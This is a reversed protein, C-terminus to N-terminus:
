KFFRVIAKTGKGVKSEITLDGSCMTKIRSRINNIGIHQNSEFDINNMDFGVGDDIVEVIYADSTEYSKVVVSGGEIKQLVGHKIANEVLPQISLPPVQFDKAKIDFSVNLRENFRMQELSVYTEIHKLEDEFRVTKNNTLTSFNMRLYETFDDLAKKAKNPDITILVSISSLTNYVFHPRIQSVMIKVYAEEIKREEEKIRIDKSANLFQVLIEATIIISMYAIAFGPMANQVVISVLPLTCYLGFAIKERVHLNKSILALVFIIAFMIFQYGQSIIMLKSRQYVGNDANFFMHTFINLIDLIVFVAFLSLNIITTIKKLKSGINAYYILYYFLLFVEINNMVYFLTYFGIIFNNSTYTEKIFTFTLYVAFHIITFAFFILIVIEDKRKEKKLLLNAVHILFVLIGIVCVTINFIAKDNMIYINYCM